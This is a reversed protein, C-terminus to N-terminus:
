IRHGRVAGGRHAQQLLWGKRCSDRFGLAASGCGDQGVRGRQDQRSLLAVSGDTRERELLGARILVGVIEARVLRPDPHVRGVAAGLGNGGFGILQDDRRLRGVQRGSCVRCHDIDNVRAGIVEGIHQPDRDGEGDRGRRHRCRRGRRGCRRRGHGRRLRFRDHQRGGWRGSGYGHWRGGAGAGGAGGTTEPVPITAVGTASVSVAAFPCGATPV